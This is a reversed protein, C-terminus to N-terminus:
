ESCVWVSIRIAAMKCVGACSQTIWSGSLMKRVGTEFIKASVGGLDKKIESADIADRRNHGQQDAVYTILDKYSLLGKPYCPLADELLACLIDLVEVRAM